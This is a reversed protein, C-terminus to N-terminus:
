INKKKFIIYKYFFLLLGDCDVTLIICSIFFSTSSTSSLPDDDIDITLGNLSDISVISLAVSNSNYTCM